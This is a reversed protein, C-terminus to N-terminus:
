LDNREQLITNTIKVNNEVNTKEYMLKDKENKFKNELIKFNNLLENKDSNCKIEM